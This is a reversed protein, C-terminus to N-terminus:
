MRRTECREVRWSGGESSLRCRFRERDVRNTVQYAEAVAGEPDTAVDTVVMLQAQRRTTRHVAGTAGVTCSSMSVVRTTGTSLTRNWSAPASSPLPGTGICIFDTGLWRENRILYRFTALYIDDQESLGGGRDQVFPYDPGSSACGGVLVAMCLALVCPLSLRGAHTRGTTM